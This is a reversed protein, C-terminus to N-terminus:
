CWPSLSFPPPFSTEGFPWTWSNKSIQCPPWVRRSVCFCDGAWFLCFVATPYL